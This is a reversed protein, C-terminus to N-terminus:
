HSNGPDSIDMEVNMLVAHVVMRYAYTDTDANYGQCTILTVWSRDEHRYVSLDNPTVREVNRIEYTYVLGNVHVVVKDGWKLRGLGIFPGPQGNPLYVHGTIVSNGSTTPYATGNLWGAQNGLWTLDWESGNAPIGVIPMEVGLDPIELWLDGLNAYEDTAKQVPLSTVVGPAFGTAPLPPVTINFSARVGYVDVLSLPDYRREISYINNTTQPTSIDGPLSSWEVRAENTVSTGPPLTQLRAQFQIVSQGPTRPFDDWIVQLTPAGTDDVTTPAIGSVYALSGPIYELGSPVIDELLVDYADASTQATHEVTLTFTIVTGPVGINTDATKTLTLDPEVITLPTPSLTHLPGVSWELDVSNNLDVTEQNDVIDLVVVRYQLTILGVDGSTNTLDGFDFTVQRGANAPDGPAGISSVLPNACIASFGGPINTNIDAVPTATITVCDVFALGRDLHDIVMVDSTVGVPVHFQVQYTFIEGIAAEPLPTAGLNHGILTKAISKQITLTVSDSAAYDNPGSGSGTRENSNDGAMSTWTTNAANLITQNLTVTGAVTADFTVVVTSGDDPLSNILIEVRNGSSNNTVGSATGTLTVNISALNLILEAPLDDFILVDFADANSSANHQVTLTFTVVQNPGPYLDSSAKTIDLVPEIISISETDTYDTASVTMTASNVLPPPSQQNGAENLVVAQFRVSFTNNGDDGDANVTISAFDLQVDTGSGPPDPLLTVTPAPVSGNLGTTDLVLSGTIYQLGAPLDDVIRLSPTTGEPLTVNLGFTVTEGIAFETSSGGPYVSKSFAPDHVNFSDSDSDLYDNPGSGSGTRENPNSGSTSTWTIDGTNAILQSPTVTNDLTAWYEIVVSTGPTNPIASIVVDVTNGSTGSTDAGVAGGNLTVVISHGVLDLTVDAPLTDTFHVDYATAHSSTTPTITVIYHVEDGADPQVVFAAHTKDVNLASEVVSFDDTDQKDQPNGGADTYYLHVENVLNTGDVNGAVNAVVADYEITIPSATVQADAFDWTLTVPASGDNPVSVSFGGAGAGPTIGGSVTQSGTVYILGAPLTDVVQADQLTGLPSNITLTIHVTQGIVVQTVGGDSKSITAGETTFSADDTDQTGDVGPRSVSDNYQRENPQSGNQSSWDADITNTHTGDLFVGSQATATYICQIYSDPNTAPIDWSGAPNGDFTITGSGVTVTVAIPSTGSGDYLTCTASGVDYAMGQALTDLATVEYATSTGTNTFTVTYTVTDGAEVGMTPNVSKTTVIIPETITSNESDTLQPAPTGNARDHDLTVNNILVDGIENGNVDAVRASYTITANALNKYVDGFTWTLTVPATGDNPSSVVPAPTSAFGNIVADNNYILGAPLHDTIVVDRYTGTDGGITLTFTITDGIVVQTVGGDDKALTPADSTFTADDTDQTGDVTRSVSDDYIRENADTGNLSTWDADITNTHSGDMYLDTQAIVTYECEIWNGPAIDWSGSPNGDFELWTGHDTVTTPVHAASQDMCSTLANFLVGQALDDRATVEHATDNGTNTFRVIYTVTDGAAVSSTPVVSKATTIRAEVVTVDVSNSPTAPNSGVQNTAQNSIVTGTQNASIDTVRARFRLLITNNTNVNGDENAVVNSLDFQVSGGDGSVVTINQSGISGNFDNALVGGSAAATTIVEPTGAVIELGTPLDDVVTDTPTTGEPFTLLLDYTVEEGIAVNTGSTHPASTTTIQKAITVGPITVNDTAQDSYDNWPRAGNSGDREGNDTGSTGPTTSGTPNPSTGNTGPLSTYTINATNAIVEEPTVTTNLTATYTITVACGAPVADISIVINPAVTNDTIGTACSGTSTINMSGANFTMKAPVTDTVQVDFATTNNVTNANSFTLTYTIVDGADGSAPAATKALNTISPEVIYVRLNNSASGNQVGNIFVSFNNQRYDGADNSGTSTNDVLANFEVIVYETDADSDNNTLTGLKFYPHAGTTYNDDDTSTSNSSGVNNDALPDCAAPIAPTTGDASNGSLFCDPDTIGPVPLTGYDSSTIGAGNSVFAVKATGDDLYMLGSPLYDRIQFNTSTGEPLSVVLRYRIIEGITVREYGSVFGTHAESTTLLYKQPAINNITVTATGETRYDNLVGTGLLGDAGTRETSDIHYTSRQGPAGSLSTWRTQATNTIVQGPGVSYDVLADFTITCTEGPDLQSVSGTLTPASADSLTLAHTTCSGSLTAPTYTLGTPLTDSWTVDYATTSGSAPNTLTVTFTVTNGADTNTPVVVKSTNVTPEIVTVNPASGSGLQTDGSGNNMYFAASNNLLSSSQNSMVNLAIARYTITITEATANDRNANTVNGLDFRIDHGNNTVGSAETTACVGAFGGALDTSVDPSATVSVCNVFALGSDLQDLVFANPVVGEPVTSTLRYTIIEGIVVQSDNNFADHIETEVIDKAFNALVTAEADDYIPSPTPVHNPGGEDGAYHTITGVNTITGPTITSSAELDYTIVIINNGTTPNYASCVGQGVPDVLRIGTTFLDGPAAPSGDPKTYNIPGTGDGYYIQLNLGGSPIQFGAPLTDLIDIDFTGKLSSGQNEIVIAFSVTDGADIGTIDSDIPFAALNTSNITGSWRPTNTPDLFTVPGTTAPTFAANSNDSWFIGKLTNLAPETLIIQVIANADATGANTSGEYAHAQNTLYLRDAFPDDSVTVTFLLDVIYQQETTGDFDGYLFNLRNNATNSTIGPTISSYAYFTDSPGFKAVGAAPVSGDVVPSFTWAPGAAGDEDPDGVHFVPMPLYDDFELDEFDGTPLTYTLRYTITDGPKVEVPTSFSTSGNVAYIAKTLLGRGIVSIAASDDDEASGTPTSVDSNSLIDGDIVVDNELTDGQDVSPDGSPYTDTFNQQVITRFIITGTTPGDDYTGCDPDGGGTGTTPVCGGILKGNEGRTIIEDSVRFTLTTSGDTAPDPDNGIQSTDVTYNAANMAATALTYSNGNIQLTPVFSSDFHQGDSFIDTVVIDQFAFFDSIQFNLTYELTKGPFVDGGGVVSVSKQIAISKDTLTHECGSPDETFTGGTDRADLPTWTGGSSANNCSTVDNGSAPDIVSANASDRLPIYYEFTMTVTGSVSGSFDCSLTGGPTSTSPLTCSAGGPNTSVLSVFQMNNPLVDTLNFATMSQGPAIEATVTYQRPFNPGTATEDEPGSYSKSLTFLIPNVSDNTWSSLSLSPDDGCCWDDLPTFGFEYGGRAQITLPTGLDALNSMSTTVNVVLPPQEPTFSGFPLRLAVFTDGPTLSCVQIYAGTNDRMYPHTVCGSGPVTIVTKELAVGLYTADVFTLGDPNPSGDPGNTPIILDILPGYGPVTNTNDFTVTFTVNDGIFVEAPVSLSVAPPTNAQPHEAPAAQVLTSNGLASQSIILVLAFVVQFIFRPRLPQFYTSRKM